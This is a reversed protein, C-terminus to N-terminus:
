KAQLASSVGTGPVPNRRTPRYQRAPAAPLERHLQELKEPIVRRVVEIFPGVLVPLERTDLRQTINVFDGNMLNLRMQWFTLDPDRPPLVGFREGSLRVYMQSYGLHRAAVQLTDWCEEVSRAKVLTREFTELIVHTRLAPRFGLWFFRRVAEFEAYALYRVGVFVAAGFLVLLLGSFRNQLVSQLLSLTAGFGCVAYLLLAVGRPTFGRDLLRHHIHGRDGGFVPENNILRRIVSLGVDLLPLALAMLPAAMGLMAASKQSWIVAYCGLLFGIFLSGCDGLFISAPNFNYRLFGLLAGILPATALALTLDGKMLGSLFITLSALIGLGTALGDIGDILNFANACLVLWAITILPEMWFPFAHGGVSHIRVGGSYALAGAIIQGALKLWPRLDLMDDLLGTLFIALVAPLLNVVLRENSQILLGGSLPTILLVLYALAYSGAVAVGGMRPVATEHLKRPGGPRDVVKIGILWDRLLPTLVLSFFLALAAVFGLSYM